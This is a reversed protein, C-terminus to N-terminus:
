RETSQQGRTELDSMKEKMAQLEEAQKAMKTKLAQLENTKQDAEESVGETADAEQALGKIVDQTEDAQRAMERSLDQIESAQRATERRTDQLRDAKRSTGQVKGAQGPKVKGGEEANKRKKFMKKSEDKMQGKIWKREEPTADILPLPRRKKKKETISEQLSSGTLKAFDCRVKEGRISKRLLVKYGEIAAAVSTFRAFGYGRYLANLGSGRLVDIRRTNELGAFVADLEADTADEPVGTFFVSDSPAQFAVGPVYRNAKVIRGRLESRHVKTFAEIM